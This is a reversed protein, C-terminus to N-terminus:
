LASLDRRQTLWIVQYPELTVTLADEAITFTLDSVLDVYTGGSLGAQSLPVSLVIDDGSVNILCLVSADGDRPIRRIAFVRPDFDLVEQSANPHFAPNTTRVELLDIYRKAIPTHVSGPDSFADFLKREEIATRNISRFSEGRCVADTDNRSGFMSPLYIAPVGRLVLAIARSAIFRAVQRELPEDAEGGSLVSLWTANLEYPSQTGDGNSKMSVHGDCATVADCMLAIDEEGLIGRAGMVGIGDHSDLFNFFATTESPLVLDRAWATLTEANGTLFAHLVLPPLAFNYVMQAEDVGSGFYTINDSHPVNTETIIAVHPAAVDLVDRFLKVVEHTEELHACSTGMEYWLYTIADLRVIDAGRRVYELLTEAIRLLVAPSKFNLDIQDPSFTTWVYRPGNVTMFETLVDSTRPRLIVALDHQDIEERSEFNIFFDQYAPDGALFRQFWESKASCHNIVGDFMLKFSKKLEAIDHWTGLEPDVETYSIVSFGRDSSYPFFPLVHITSILGRFFIEAFDTLTRLPTRTESVVLDGYTILVVDKETFRDEPRFANEANSLQPTGHACHVKVSRALEGYLAEASEEGYLLALRKTMLRKKDEPIEVPPLSYDPELRYQLEQFPDTAGYVSTTEKM